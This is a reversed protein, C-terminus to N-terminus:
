PLIVGELEENTTTSTTVDNIKNDNENLQKYKRHFYELANSTQM